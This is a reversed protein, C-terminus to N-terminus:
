KFFQVNTFDTLKSSLKLTFTKEKNNVNIFWTMM